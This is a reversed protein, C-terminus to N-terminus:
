NEKIIRSVEYYRDRDAWGEEVSKAGYYCDHHLSMKMNKRWEQDCEKFSQLASEDKNQLLYFNGLQPKVWYSFKSSSLVQLLKEADEPNDQNILHDIKEQIMSENELLYDEKIWPAIAEIRKVIEIFNDNNDQELYQDALSFYSKAINASNKTFYAVDIEDLYVWLKIKEENTLPLYAFAPVTDNLFWNHFDFALLYFYGAREIDKNKLYDDAIRSSLKALDKNIPYSGQDGRTRSKDYLIKVNILEKEVLEPQSDYLNALTHYSYYYWPDIVVVRDRLYTLVEEPDKILYYSSHYRYVEDLVKASEENLLKDHLFLKMHTQFYPFLKVAQNTKGFYILSEVSISVLSLGILISSVLIFILKIVVSFRFDKKSMKKIIEVKQSRLIIVIFLLTMALVGLFSWDFDFLVDLYIASLGIFLAQTLSFDNHSTLAKNSSLKVLSAKASFFWCSMMLLTFILFFIIGNESLSQLYANHAYASNGGSADKYKYNILSYTGPGYGVKWNEKISTLARQWYIVRAEQSLDKCIKDEYSSFLPLKCSFDDKFLFLSSILLNGLLIIVFLFVFLSYFYKFIPQQSIFKRYNIFGLLLIELFGIFIVVRGFSTLLNFLFLTLLGSMLLFNQREKNQWFKILYFFAVPIFMILLAGIHNHGYSSYLLNMGPILESFNPFFIFVLSMLNIVFM